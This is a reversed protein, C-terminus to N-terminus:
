SEYKAPPLTIRMTLMNDTNIGPNIKLITLFSKMLLGAGTLLVLSMSIELSSWRQACGIVVM